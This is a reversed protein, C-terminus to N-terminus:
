EASMAQAEIAAILRQWHAAAEPHQEALAESAQAAAAVDGARLAEAVESGLGDSGAQIMRGAHILFAPYRDTVAVSAADVFHAEAVAFRADDDTHIAVTLETVGREVSADLLGGMGAHKFVAWAFMAAAVVVVATGVNRVQRRSPPRSPEMM